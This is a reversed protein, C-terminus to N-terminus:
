FFNKLKFFIFFVYFDIILFFLMFIYLSFYILNYIIVLNKLHLYFQITQIDSVFGITSLIIILLTVLINKGILYIIIM